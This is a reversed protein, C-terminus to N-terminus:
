ENELIGGSEEDDEDQLFVGSTEKLPISWSSGDDRTLSVVGDHLSELTGYQERTGDDQPRILRVRVPWGTFRAFHEALRLERAM